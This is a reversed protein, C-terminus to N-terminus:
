VDRKFSPNAKRGNFWGLLAAILGLNLWSFGGSHKDKAVDTTKTHAAIAEDRIAVDKETPCYRQFKGTHDFYNVLKGSRTFILSALARSNKERWEPTQEAGWNAPLESQIPTILGKAVDELTSSIWFSLSAMLVLFLTAPILMKLAHRKPEGQGIIRMGEYIWVIALVVVADNFISGALVDIKHLIEM